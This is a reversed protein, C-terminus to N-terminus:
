DKQKDNIYNCEYTLISRDITWVRYLGNLMSNIYFRESTIIGHHYTRRYGERKGNVYYCEDFISPTNYRQRKGHLLGNVYSKEEYLGGGPYFKQYLGEKKGNPYYFYKEISDEHKRIFQYRKM